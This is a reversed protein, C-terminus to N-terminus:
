LLLFHLVDIIVVFVLLVMLGWFHIQAEINRNIPKGRIWEITTFVMRAGDLSPIPLINFVALNVAIFPLFIFLNAISEETYSAITTITSIPGTVGSLSVQGTILMFLFQLVQWAMEITMPVSRALATWFSQPAPAVTIGLNFYTQGDKEVTEINLYTNITQGDREVTITVSEKDLNQSLLVNFTDGGCFDIKVGDIETIVDGTQLHANVGTSDIQTVKPIDYGFSVLLIITFIIASLFNFLVGSFQVILRQWAPKSNFDGEKTVETDEGAFACYGGLPLIRISFIEGNKKTKKYIVKGFGISFEDIKFKFIKGATYHGLEHITIMLLLICIALVIYGIYTLIDVFSSALLQSVM